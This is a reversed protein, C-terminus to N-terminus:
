FTSFKTTGGPDKSQKNPPSGGKTSINYKFSGRHYTSSQRNYALEIRRNYNNSCNYDCSQVLMIVTLTTVVMRSDFPLPLGSQM